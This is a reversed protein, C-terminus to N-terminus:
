ATGSPAASLRMSLGVGIKDSLYAYIGPEHASYWFGDWAMIIRNPGLYIPLQLTLNGSIGPFAVDGVTELRISDDNVAQIIDITGGAYLRDPALTGAAPSFRYGVSSASIVAPTLTFDKAVITAGGGVGSGAYGGNANYPTGQYFRAPAVPQAVLEGNPGYPTAGSGYYSPQVAQLGVMERAANFPIGQSFLSIPGAGVVIENAANFPLGRFRHTIPGVGVRLRGSSNVLGQFVGSM